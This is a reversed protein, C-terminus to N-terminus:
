VEEQRFYWWQPFNLSVRPISESFVKAGGALTVKTRARIATTAVTLFYDKNRSHKESLFVVSLV